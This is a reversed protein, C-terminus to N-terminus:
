EEWEITLKTIINNRQLHEIISAFDDQKVTDDEWIDPYIVFSGSEPHIRKIWKVNTFMEKKKEKVIEWNESLLDIDDYFNDETLQKIHHLFTVRVDKTISHIHIPAPYHKITLIIKQGDKAKKWAEILNM